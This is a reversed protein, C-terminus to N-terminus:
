RGRWPLVMGALPVVPVFAVVVAVVPWGDADGAMWGWWRAAISRSGPPAVVPSRCWPLRCWPCGRGRWGSSLPVVAGGSRSSASGPPCDGALSLPVRRAVRCRWGNMGPSRCLAVVPGRESRFPSLNVPCAPPMLRFDGAPKGWASVRLAVCGASHGVALAARRCGGGGGPRSPVHLSPACGWAVPSPDFGGCPM